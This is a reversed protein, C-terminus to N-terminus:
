SSAKTTTPFNVGKGDMTTSKFPASQVGEHYKALPQTVPKAIAQPAKDSPVIRFSGEATLDAVQWVTEKDKLKFPEAVDFREITQPNGNEGPIIFYLKIGSGYKAGHDSGQFDGTALQDDMLVQYTDGGLTIQGEYGYDRFYELKSTVDPFGAPLGETKAIHMFEIAAMKLGNSDPLPISLTGSYRTMTGGLKPIPAVEKKLTVQPDNTLDGDNDADFYAVEDKDAPRDIVLAYSKGGFSLATYLPSTLEASKVLTSPRTTSLNLERAVHGAKHAIGSPVFSLNVAATPKTTPAQRDDGAPANIHDAAAVADNMQPVATLSIEHQPNVYKRLVDRVQDTTFTDYVDPLEKLEALNHKHYTLQALQGLWFSPEKLESAFRTAMQKKATDLEQQTPGTDALSKFLELITAALRGANKPDTPASASIQGLEPVGRGPQSQCAISYVLNDKMRIRQIMRETLIMSALALPRRDLSNEGCTVYGALAIATPTTGPFEVTKTFPGTARNLKRLSDLDDFTGTRKPLSGLYQGILEVARDSSIDGVVAVEIAAHQAIQDFWQQAADRQLGHIVDPTMLALRLDGAGVTQSVAGGLQGQASIKNKKWASMAELKWQDAVTQELVGDTLLANVLQLGAPVDAPSGGVGITLADLGIGGNVSVNKGVMLDRLQTSTLRHTAPHALLQSALQSLGKTQTTEEIVGGPLSIEISAQDKKYDVFKHHLVVGNAFVVTTVGLQEDVERSMVTGPAPDAALISVASAAVAVANSKRTWAATAATLLEDNSPILSVDLSAPLKLVYAYNRAGFDEDFAQHLEEVTLSSVIAQTLDLRQQASLIPSNTGVLSTLETVLQKSDQTSETQVAREASSMLGRVALDLEETTFGRDIASNLQAVLGDLIQNWEKPKGEAGATMEFAQDMISSGGVNAGNFPAGGASVLDAMRRNVIWEAISEIVQRRYKGVTDLRGRSPKVCILSVQAAVMEPDTLVLARPAEFPKLGLKVPERTPGRAKFSGLKERAQSIMQEPDIDGAVILTMNEPRYWTNWYDLFESQPFTKIQEEDGIVDHVALPSDAYLKINERKRLRQAAGKKTRAEELIVRRESEIQIPYLSLASAYDSFITLATDITEPKNDPMTLKFVTEYLNTHANTDAGFTMGLHSLYPILKMPAFHQSGKFAMHEMFHALGNQQDTENLAGTRVHLDLSFKGPPTTAKRIIYKVGNDFSGYLNNPDRPLPADPTAEAARALTALGLLACTM